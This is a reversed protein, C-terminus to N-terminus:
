GPRLAFSTTPNIAHPGNAPDQSNLAPDTGFLLVTSNATEETTVPGYIGVVISGAQTGGVVYVIQDVYCPEKVEFLQLFVRGVTFTQSTAGIAGGGHYAALWRSSLRSEAPNFPM